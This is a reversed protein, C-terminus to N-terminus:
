LALLIFAFMEEDLLAFRRLLAGASELKVEGSLHRLRWWIMSPLIFMFAQGMLIFPVWQYYSIKMTEKSRRHSSLGLSEHPPLYYTNTVWCYTQVYDAM